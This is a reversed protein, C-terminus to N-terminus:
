GRLKQAIEPADICGLRLTIIKGQNRVRLSDGDGVSIVTPLTSQAVAPVLGPTLLLTSALTTIVAKKNM